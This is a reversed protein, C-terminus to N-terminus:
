LELKKLITEIAQIEKTAVGKLYVDIDKDLYGQLVEKERNLEFRITVIEGATLEVKIM